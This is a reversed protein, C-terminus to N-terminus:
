QQPQQPNVSSARQLRFLAKGAVVIHLRRAEGPLRVVFRGDPKSRQSNTERAANDRGRLGEQRKESKKFCKNEQVPPKPSRILIRLRRLFERPLDRKFAAQAGEPTHGIQTPSS